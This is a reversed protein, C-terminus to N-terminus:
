AEEINQQRVTVSNSQYQEFLAITEQTQHPEVEAAILIHGERIGKIYAHVEDEAVGWGLLAGFLSGYIAGVATGAATTSALAPIGVFLVPGMTILMSAGMILGLLGGFVSGSLAGTGAGEKAMTARNDALAESAVEEQAVVHIDEQTLGMDSLQTIVNQVDDIETFLGLVVPQPANLTSGIYTYATKITAYQSRVKTEVGAPWTASKDLAERYSELLEEEAELSEEILIDDTKEREITMAAKITILGRHLFDLLDGDASDEDEVTVDTSYIALAEAFAGRQEARERFVDRLQQNVANNMATRYHQQNEQLADILTQVTETFAENEEIELDM